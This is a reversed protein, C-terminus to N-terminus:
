KKTASWQGTSGDGGALEYNLWSGKISSGDSSLFGELEMSKGLESDIRVLYVKRKVLTGQLSGSWGGALQYTGTILTGSQKLSFRGRQELPLLVVSWEGALAGAAEDQQGRLAVLQQGLLAIRRVHTEISEILARETFLMRSREGEAAEIQVLLRDIRRTAGDAVSEVERDLEAYLEVMRGLLATRRSSNTRYRTLGEQLLVKEVEVEVAIATVAGSTADISLAIPPEEAAIGLCCGLGITLWTGVLRVKM